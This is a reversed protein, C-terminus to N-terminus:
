PKDHEKEADVTLVESVKDVKAPDVGQLRLLLDVAKSRQANDHALYMFGGLVCIVVIAGLALSGHAEIAKKGFGFKFWPEKADSVGSPLKGGNTSIMVHELVIEQVRISRAVGSALPLHRGDCIPDGSTRNMAAIAADNDSKVIRLLDMENMDTM